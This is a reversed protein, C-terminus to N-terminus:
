HDPWNLGLAKALFVAMQRRTLTGDPCYNGGGCGATIGSAALAEIYQFASDSLPVDNFTPAGPAPSVQLHYGFGAGGFTQTGDLVGFTVDVLYEGLNNDVTFSLGGGSITTSACGSPVSGSDFTAAPPTTCAGYHDCAYLNVTMHPPGSNNDCYSFQFDDLTSGVPVHAFGILHPFGATIWRQYSYQASEPLWTSTYLTGSTDPHFEAAGLRYWSEATTGWNPPPTGIFYTRPPGQASRPSPQKQVIPNDQAQMATALLGAGISTAIAL